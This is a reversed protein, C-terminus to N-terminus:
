RIVLAGHPAEKGNRRFGRQFLKGLNSCPIRHKLQHRSLFRLRSHPVHFLPERRSREPCAKSGRSSIYQHVGKRIQNRIGPGLPHARTRSQLAAMFPREEVTTDCLHPQGMRAANQPPPHLNKLQGSCEPLHRSRMRFPCTKLVHRCAGGIPQPKLRQAKGKESELCFSVGLPQFGRHKGLRNRCSHFERGERNHPGATPHRSGFGRSAYLRLRWV